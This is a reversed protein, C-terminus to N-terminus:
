KRGGKTYPQNLEQFVTGASFSEEPSYIKGSWQQFPIYANGYYVTEPFVSTTEGIDMSICDNEINTDQYFEKYANPINDLEDQNM